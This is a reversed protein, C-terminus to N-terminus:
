YNMKSYTKYTFDKPVMSCMGPSLLRAEQTKGVEGSHTRLRMKGAWHGWVAHGWGAVVPM